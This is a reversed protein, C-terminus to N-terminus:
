HPRIFDHMLPDKSFRPRTTISPLFSHSVYASPVDLTFGNFVKTFRDNVKINDTVYERITRIVSNQKSLLASDNLENTDDKLQIIIRADREEKNVNVQKVASMSGLSLAAAVLSLLIFKKM